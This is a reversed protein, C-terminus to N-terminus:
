LHCCLEEQCCGTFQCCELEIFRAIKFSKFNLNLSRFPLGCINLHKLNVEAGLMDLLAQVVNITALNQLNLDSHGILLDTM